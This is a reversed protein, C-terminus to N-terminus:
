RLPTNKVFAQIAEAYYEPEEHRPMHASNVCIVVTRNQVKNLFEETQLESCIPDYKGKILLVPCTINTLKDLVPQKLVQDNIKNQFMKQKQWDYHQIESQEVIDNFFHPNLSRIYVQDRKESIENFISFLEQKSYNYADKCRDALKDQGDERYLKEAKKVVSQLSELMDFTPCELVVQEIVDPFQYAYEVALYGGFSHGILGWRDIKFHDRIFEFDNILNQISFDEIEEIADSRLCGRQDISILHIFPSLRQAQTLNFDYSGVGPGGHLYLFTPLSNDGYEEYYIKKNEVSIYGNM